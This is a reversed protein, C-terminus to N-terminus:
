GCFRWESARRVNAGFPWVGAVRLGSAQKLSRQQLELKDIAARMRAIEACRKRLLSLDGVEALAARRRGNEQNLRVCDACTRELRAVEVRLRGHREQEGIMVTGIAGILAVGLILLVFKAAM